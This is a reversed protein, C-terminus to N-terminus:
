KASLVSVGFKMTVFVAHTLPDVAVHQPESDLHVTTTLARTNADIVSVTSQEKDTVYIAQAVPDISLSRDSPKADLPVSDAVTHTAPDFIMVHGNYGVAAVTGSKSDVAVDLAEDPLAVTDAVKNTTTDIAVLNSSGNAAAYITHNAPNLAMGQVSDALEVTGTVREGAIDVMKLTNVGTYQVYLTKRDPSLVLEGPVDGVPITAAVRDSALDVVLVNGSTGSIGALYLKQGVPDIAIGDLIYNGGGLAVDNVKNRTVTDIVIPDGMGAVYVKHADADVAMRAPFMGASINSVVATAPPVKQETTSPAGAHVETQNACGGVFATSVLVAILGVKAPIALGGFTPTMRM